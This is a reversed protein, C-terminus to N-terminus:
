YLIELKQFYQTKMMQNKFNFFYVIFSKTDVILNTFSSNLLENINCNLSYDLFILIINLIGISRYHNSVCNNVIFNSKQAISTINQFINAIDIESGNTIQIFICFYFFLVQYITQWEDFNIPDLLYDFIQFISQFIIYFSLYVNLITIDFISNNYIMANNIEDLLILTIKIEGSYLKKLHINKRLINILSELVTQIEIKNHNKYSKQKCVLYTYKFVTFKNKVILLDQSICDIYNPNSWTGNELCKRSVNGIIYNNQNNQSCPQVLTEGKLTFPWNTSFEDIENCGTNELPVIVFPTNNKNFKNSFNSLKLNNPIKQHEFKRKSANELKLKKEINKSLKMIDKEQKKWWNKYKNLQLSINNSHQIILNNINPYIYNSMIQFIDNTINKKVKEVDFNTIKEIKQNLNNYENALMGMTMDLKAFKTQLEILIKSIQNHKKNKLYKKNFKINNSNTNKIKKKHHIIRNQKSSKLHKNKDSDSLNNIEEENEFNLKKSQPLLNQNQTYDVSNTNDFLENELNYNYVNDKNLNLYNDQLNELNYYRFILIFVM